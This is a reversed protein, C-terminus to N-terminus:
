DKFLARLQRLASDALRDGAGPLYFTAGPTPEYGGQDFSPRTPIYGIADNALEVVLTHRAPSSNRIDIGFECFIEGPLGVIGVDGIRLAMVEVQDDAGQNQYMGLRTIAWYADPLGDVQGPEPSTRQREIVEECWRREQETIPIRPLAVRESSVAVCDGDVPISAKLAQAADLALMSGIRENMKFGRGQKPDTYDLQNINGACGNFFAAVFSEGYLQSIGAYLYGPWDASYLWNDGALVAAHLPFNVAAARPAGDEEILLTSLHTDVPGLPRVVFDPDLNEWNMHTQGDRCLLRRNFSVRAEEASGARLTAPRLESDARVVAQAAKTLFQEVESDAAKPLAGLGMSAPGSHTHTSAVLLNSPPVSCGRAVADRILAVNARDMVCIDVSLLAAKHGATDEFVLARACLPDHVGRAAYDTRYNGMLPLGIKPTYDVAAVGVRM